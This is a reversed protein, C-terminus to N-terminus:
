CGSAGKRSPSSRTARRTAPPLVQPVPLGAAIAMEEVVNLLKREDPDTTNSDVLRGGLATTVASGGQALELTKFGSGMAIVALTGVAVGFFLQPDWLAISAQEGYRHHHGLSAGTFVLLAAAYVALILLTVGCVFYVVLLKTNRHAQAQRDFFDM